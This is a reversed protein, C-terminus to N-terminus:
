RLPRAADEWPPLLRPSKPQGSYLDSHLASCLKLVWCARYVPQFASLSLSSRASCSAAASSPSCSCPFGPTIAHTLPRRLRLLSPPSWSGSSAVGTMTSSTMTGFSRGRSAMAASTWTLTTYGAMPKLGPGVLRRAMCASRRAHLRIEEAASPGRVHRVHLDHHGHM